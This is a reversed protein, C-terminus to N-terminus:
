AAGGKMIIEIIAWQSRNAAVGSGNTEVSEQSVNIDTKHLDPDM